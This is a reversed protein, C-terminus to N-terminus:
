QYENMTNVQQCLYLDNDLDTSYRWFMEDLHKIKHVMVFEGLTVISEAFRHPVTPDRQNKAQGLPSIGQFGTAIPVIWGSAKRQSRWIVSEDELQECSHNVTLYSLLADLADSGEQMADAMLERREVLVYGPMLQRLLKETEQENDETVLQSEPTQLSLIDGGAIKMTAVMDQLRQVFDDSEIEDDNGSYEIVLSVELHCRAEEIFASRSGDKDLPNGTGIISHVFDGEGKHTQLDFQHSVVAVSGFMLEDLSAQNLKRELAHTFGLWATMAPFGITFPSSLANANHIRIHPLILLRM